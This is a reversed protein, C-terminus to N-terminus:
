TKIGEYQHIAWCTICPIKCFQISKLVTTLSNLQKQQYNNSQRQIVEPWDAQATTFVTFIRVLVSM